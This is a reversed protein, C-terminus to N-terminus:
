KDGQKPIYRALEATLDLVQQRSRNLETLYNQNVKHAQDIKDQLGSYVQTYQAALKNNELQMKANVSRAKNLEAVAEDREDRIDEVKKELEQIRTKKKPSTSETIDAKNVTTDTESTSQLDNIRNVLDSNKYITKRSVGSLRHVETVNIVADLAELEDIAEEIRERATKNM